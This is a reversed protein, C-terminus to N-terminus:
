TCSWRTCTAASAAAIPTELIRAELGVVACICAAARWATSSMVPPLMAPVMCVGIETVWVLVPTVTVTLELLLSKKPPASPTTAGVSEVVATTLCILLLEALPVDQTRASFVLEVATSTEPPAVTM